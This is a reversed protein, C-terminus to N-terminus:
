SPEKSAIRQAVEVSTAKSVPADRTSVHLPGLAQTGARLHAFDHLMIGFCPFGSIVVFSRGLGNYKEFIQLIHENRIRVRGSAFLARIRVDHLKAAWKYLNRIM